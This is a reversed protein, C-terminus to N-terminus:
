VDVSGDPEASPRPAPPLLSKQHMTVIQRQAFEIQRQLRTNESTLREREVEGAHRGTLVALELRLLTNQNRLEAIDRM